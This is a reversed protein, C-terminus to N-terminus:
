QGPQSQRLRAAPGRRARDLVAHPELQALSRDWIRRRVHSAREDLRQPGGAAARRVAGGPTRGPAHANGCPWASDRLRCLREAFRDHRRLGRQRRRVARPADCALEQGRRLHPLVPECTSRRQAPHAVASICRVTGAAVRRVPVPPCGGPPGSGTRRGDALRGGRGDASHIERSGLRPRELGRRAAGVLRRRFASRCVGAAPAREGSYWGARLAIDFVARDAASRLCTAGHSGEGEVREPRGLM